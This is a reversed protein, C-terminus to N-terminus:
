LHRANSLKPKAEKAALEIKWRQFITDTLETCKQGWAVRNGCYLLYDNLLDARELMAKVSEMRQMALQHKKTEMHRALFSWSPGNKFVCSHFSVGCAPCFCKGEKLIEKALLADLAIEFQRETIELNKMGM